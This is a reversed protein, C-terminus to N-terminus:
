CKLLDKHIRLDNHTHKGPTETGCNPCPSLVEVLDIDKRSKRVDPRMGRILRVLRRHNVHRRRQRVEVHKAAVSRDCVVEVSEDASYKIERSIPCRPLRSFIRIPAAVHICEQYARSKRM